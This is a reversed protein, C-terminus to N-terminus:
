DDIAKLNQPFGPLLRAEAYTAAVVIEGSIIKQKIEELQIIIDSGLAPNTDAYGVGDKVLDFTIIKGEFTNDSVANLAYLLSTEVRKLM